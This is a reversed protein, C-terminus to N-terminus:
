TVKSATSSVLFFGATATVPTSHRETASALFMSSYDTLLANDNSLDNYECDTPKREALLDQQLWCFPMPTDDGPRRGVPACHSDFLAENNRDNPQRSKPTPFVRTFLLRQDTPATAPRVRQQFNETAHHEHSSSAFFYPIHFHHTQRIISLNNTKTM